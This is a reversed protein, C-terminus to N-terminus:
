SDISEDTDELPIIVTFCTGQDPISDVILQAQDGYISKLRRYSNAVGVHVRDSAQDKFIGNNIDDVMEQPMGCGDDVIMFIAENKSTYAELRINTVKNYDIVHKFINEVFNHILLPPVEVELADADVNYVVRYWGPYRLESVELYKQILMFEKEFPQTDKNSQFIHRFYDSLYLALKQISQYSEIQAFSFLLNFMNMLFHPRIQLQLNKLEMKQKDLKREYNEIKLNKMTDQMENFTQDIVMFEEAEKKVPIRYDPNDTKIIEMASQLEHLPVVVIRKLIFFLFPIAFIFVILLVLAILELVSINKLTNTQPLALEIQFDANQSETIVSIMDGSSASKSGKKTFYIELDEYSSNEMLSERMNDLSFMGGYVLGNKMYTKLIWESGDVEIYDWNGFLKDDEEALRRSIEAKIDAAQIRSYCKLDGTSMFFRGYTPSYWFICDVYLDSSTCRDFYSALSTEALVLRTNREGQDAYTKFDTRDDYLNYFFNASSEIRSDLQSIALNSVNKISETMQTRAHEISFAAALLGVLNFPLVILLLWRIIKWSVSNRFKAKM